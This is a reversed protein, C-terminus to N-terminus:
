RARRFRRAVVEHKVRAIASVARPPLARLLLKRVRYRAPSLDAIPAGDPVRTRAVQEPLASVVADHAFFLVNYRYWHEVGASSAIAPRVFDFLRYGRAKFLDRWFEYPRENVHHEGGQGPPAASFLVRKGHRVISDVLTASAVEPLHEGVELCQVLDFSRKLDFPTTLDAPTFLRTDVLLLSRDVYAGDVGAVDAIGARAYEALWAGAGCGVDLVSEFSLADLLHPIVARASRASGRRQYEYFLADYTHM